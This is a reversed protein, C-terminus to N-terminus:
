TIAAILADRQTALWADDIAARAEEDDGWLKSWVPNGDAVERRINGLAQEREAFVIDVLEVADPLRSATRAHSGASGPSRTSRSTTTM